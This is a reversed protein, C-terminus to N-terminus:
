RWLDIIASLAELLKEQWGEQSHNAPIWYANKSARANLGISPLTRAPVGEPLPPFRLVLQESEISISALGATEARLKVQMQYFLNEVLEPLAGFRDAFESRLAELEGEDQLSAM